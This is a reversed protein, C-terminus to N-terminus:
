SRLSVSGPPTQKCCWSSKSSAQWVQQSLRPCQQLVGGAAGGGEGLVSLSRQSGGRGPKQAAHGHPEDAGTHPSPVRASGSCSWGCALCGNAHSLFCSSLRLRPLTLQQCHATCPSAQQQASGLLSCGRGQSLQVQLSDLRLQLTNIDTLPQLLNTRLLRAGCSTSTYNLFGFLSTCRKSSAVAAQQQQRWRSSSRSRSGDRPAFIDDSNGDGGPAAAATSGQRSRANQAASAVAKQLAAQSRCVCAYLACPAPHRGDACSACATRCVAGVGSPRTPHWSCPRSLRCALTGGLAM